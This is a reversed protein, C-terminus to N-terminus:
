HTLKSGDVIGHRIYGNVSHPLFIGSHRFGALSFRNTVHVISSFFFEQSPVLRKGCPHSSAAAGGKRRRRERVQGTREQARLHARALGGSRKYLLISLLKCEITAQDAFKAGEWLAM